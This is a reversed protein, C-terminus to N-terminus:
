FKLLIKTKHTDLKLEDIVILDKDDIKKQFFLHYLLKEQKKILKKTSIRTVLPLHFLEEVVEGFQVESQDQEQEELEKKDGLNEVLHLLIQVIKKHEQEKELTQFPLFLMSIFLHEILKEILYNILFRLIVLIKGNINLIDLKM